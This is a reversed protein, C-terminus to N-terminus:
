SVGGAVEFAGPGGGDDVSRSSGLQDTRRGHGTASAWPRVRMHQVAGGTVLADLVPQEALHSAARLAMSWKEDDVQKLLRNNAASFHDIQRPLMEQELLLWHKTSSSPSPQPGPTQQTLTVARVLASFASSQPHFDM